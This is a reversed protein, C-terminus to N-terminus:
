IRNFINMLIEPPTATASLTILTDNTLGANLFIHKGYTGAVVWCTCFTKLPKRDCDPVRMSKPLPSPRNTNEDYCVSFNNYQM